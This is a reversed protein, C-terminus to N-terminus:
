IVSRCWLGLLNWGNEGRELLVLVATNKKWRSPQCIIWYVSSVWYVNTHNIKFISIFSIDLKFKYRLTNGM